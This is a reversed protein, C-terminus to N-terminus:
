TLALVPSPRTSPSLVSIPAHAEAMVLSVRTLLQFFTLTLSSLCFSVCFSVFPNSHMHVKLFCRWLVVCHLISNKRLIVNLLRAREIMPFWPFHTERGFRDVDGAKEDSDHANTAAALWCNQLIKEQRQNFSGVGKQQGCVGPSLVAM